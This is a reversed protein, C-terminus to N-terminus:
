KDQWYGGAPAQRHEDLDDFRAWSQGHVIRHVQGISVGTAASIERLLAGDRRMLRVREADIRTIKASPNREGVVSARRGKADM